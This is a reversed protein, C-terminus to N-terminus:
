LNKSNSNEEALLESTDVWSLYMLCMVVMALPSELREELAQGENLRELQELRLLELATSTRLISSDAACSPRSASPYCSSNFDRDLNARTENGQWSAGQLM